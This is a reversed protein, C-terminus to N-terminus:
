PNEYVVRVACDGVSNWVCDVWGAGASEGIFVAYLDGCDICLNCCQGVGRFLMRAKKWNNCSVNHVRFVVNDDDCWLNCVVCDGM